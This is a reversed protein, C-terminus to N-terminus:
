GARVLDFFMPRATRMAAVGTVLTRINQHSLGGAADTEDQNVGALGAAAPRDLLRQWTGDALIGATM